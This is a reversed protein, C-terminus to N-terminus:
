GGESWEGLRRVIVPTRMDSKAGAAAAASSSDDLEQVDDVDHDRSRSRRCAAHSWPRPSARLHVHQSKDQLVPRIDQYSPDMLPRPGGRTQKGGLAVNHADGASLGRPVPRGVPRISFASVPDSRRVSCRGHSCDAPAGALECTVVSLTAELHILWCANATAICSHSFSLKSPAYM